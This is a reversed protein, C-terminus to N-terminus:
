SIEHLANYFEELECLVIQTITFDWFNNENIGHESLARFIKTNFSYRKNIRLFEDIEISDLMDKNCLNYVIFAICMKFRLSSIQETELMNETLLSIYHLSVSNRIFPTCGYELCLSIIEIAQQIFGFVFMLFVESDSINSNHLFQYKSSAEKFRDRFSQSTDDDESFLVIKGIDKHAHLMIDDISNCKSYYESLSNIDDFLSVFIQEGVRSFLNNDSSQNLLRLPLILIEGNVNELIKLNDEATARIQEYLFSTEENDQIKSCMESYRSLPDDLIHINGVLLFPLHEKDDFDMMTVATFVYTNNGQLWYKLYLRIVESYRFWFLNIEDLAVYAHSSRLIPLLATLLERYETQILLIKNLLLNSKM